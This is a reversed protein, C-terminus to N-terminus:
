FELFATINKTGTKNKAIVPWGAVNIKKVCTLAIDWFDTKM